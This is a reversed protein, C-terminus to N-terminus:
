LMVCLSVCVYTCVCSVCMVWVFVYLEVAHASHPCVIVDCVFLYVCVYTCVCSVCVCSGCMCVCVEDRQSTVADLEEARQEYDALKARFDEIAGIDPSMKVLEAELM